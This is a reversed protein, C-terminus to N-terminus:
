RKGPCVASHKQMHTYTHTASTLAAASDQNFIDEAAAPKPRIVDSTIRERREKNGSKLGLAHQSFCLASVTCVDLQKETHLLLLLFLSLIHNM